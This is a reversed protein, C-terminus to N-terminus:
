QLPAIIVPWNALMNWAHDEAEDYKSRDAFEGLYSRESEEHFEPAIRKICDLISETPAPDRLRATLQKHQMCERSFYALFILAEYLVGVHSTGTRVISTMADAERAVCFLLNREVPSLKSSNIKKM